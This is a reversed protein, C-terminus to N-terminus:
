ITHTHGNDTISHTASTVVTTNSADKVPVTVDAAATVNPISIATGLTPATGNGGSKVHSATTTTSQVGTM